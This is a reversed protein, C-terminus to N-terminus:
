TSPVESAITCLHSLTAPILLLSAPRGPSSASLPISWQSGGLYARTVPYVAAQSCPSSNLSFTWLQRQGVKEGLSLYLLISFSIERSPIMFEGLAFPQHKEEKEGEKWEKDLELWTRDSLSFQPKAPTPSSLGQFGTARGWVEYGVGIHEGESMQREPWFGIDQSGSLGIVDPFPFDYNLCFLLLFSLVCICM